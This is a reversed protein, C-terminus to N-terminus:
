SNTQFSLPQLHKTYVKQKESDTAAHQPRVIDQVVWVNEGSTSKQGPQPERKGLRVALPSTVQMQQLNTTDLLSNSSFTFNVLNIFCLNM